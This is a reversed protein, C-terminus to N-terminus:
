KLHIDSGRGRSAADAERVGTGGKGPKAEDEVLRVRCDVFHVQLCQNKELGDAQLVM